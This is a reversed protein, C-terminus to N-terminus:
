SSVHAESLYRYTDDPLLIFDSIVLDGDEEFNVLEHIFRHINVGHKTVNANFDGYLITYPSDAVSVLM